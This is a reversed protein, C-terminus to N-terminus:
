VLKHAFLNFRFNQITNFPTIHNEAFSNILNFHKGFVNFMGQENYRSVPLASCKEPGSESFTAIILHPSAFESVTEAYRKIDSEETLFHFAARDHWVAYARSPIFSKIDSEIWQVKAAANGLRAKARKLAEGSIDLVTVDTYGEALLNDVLKSDGGGIDIIPAMKSVGTNHILSLSTLPVAETWSVEEPLKTSFVQEWHQKTDSM